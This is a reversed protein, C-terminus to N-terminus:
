LVKIVSNKGRSMKKIYIHIGKVSLKQTVKYPFKSYKEKLQKLSEEKVEKRENELIVVYVHRVKEKYYKEIQDNLKGVNNSDLGYKFEIYDKIERNESVKFVLALDARRAGKELTIEKPHERYKDRSDLFKKFSDRLSLERIKENDLWKLPDWSELLKQFYKSNNMKDLFEAVKKEKEPDDIIFM